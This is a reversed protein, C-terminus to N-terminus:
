PKMVDKAVINKIKPLKSFLKKKKLFFKAILTSFIQFIWRKEHKKLSCRRDERLSANESGNPRCICIIFHDYPENIRPFNHNKWFFLKTRLTHSWNRFSLKVNFENHSLDSKQWKWFVNGYMHQPWKGLVEVSHVYELISCVPPTEAKTSMAVGSAMGQLCRFDYIQTM